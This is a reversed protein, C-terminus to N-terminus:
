CGRSTTLTVTLSMQVAAAMAGRVKWRYKVVLSSTSASFVEVVRDAVERLDQVGDGQVARLDRRGVRGGSPVLADTTLAPL